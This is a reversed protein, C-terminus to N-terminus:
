SVGSNYDFVFHCKKNHSVTYFQSYMVTQKDNVDNNTFQCSILFIGYLQMYSDSLM